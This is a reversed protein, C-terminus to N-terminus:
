YLYDRTSITAGSISTIGLSYLAREMRYLNGALDRLLRDVGAFNTQPPNGKLKKKWKM